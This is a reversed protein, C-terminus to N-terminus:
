SVIPRISIPPTPRMLRRFLSAAFSKGTYEYDALVFANATDSLVWTYNATVNATMKPTYLVDQGVQATVTNSSSTIYAHEGGANATLTLGRLFPPKYRVELERRDGQMASM